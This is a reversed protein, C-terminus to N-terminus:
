ISVHYVDKVLIEIDAPYTSDITFSYAMIITTKNLM